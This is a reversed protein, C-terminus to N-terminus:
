NSRKRRGVFGFTILSLLMAFLGALSSTTNNEATEPLEVAGKDSAPTAEDPTVKAPTAPTPQGPTAQGVVPTDPTTPTAPKEPEPTHTKVTNSVLEEGNVILSFTNEVDGPAIRTMQVAAWAGWKTNPDLLKNLEEKQAITFKGNEKDWILNYYKTIDTGLSKISGDDNFVTGKIKTGDKLTTDTSAYVKYQGDFRDHTEDYDDVMAYGYLTNGDKDKADHLGEAPVTVVGSNGTNLGYNFHTGLKIESGDINKSNDMDVFVDKQPDIKPVNNVVTNTQYGNGWDGQFATNTYKTGMAAKTVKGVFTWDLSKGQKIFNNYFTEADKADKNYLIGFAGKPQIGNLKLLDQVVKPADAVSDYQGYTLGEPIQSEGNYLFQDKDPVIAGDPYDDVIVVGKDITNKDLPVGKYQDYDAHVNYHNYSGPLRDQGDINVGDKNKDEKYPNIENPTNPVYPEGPKQPKFPHTNTTVTNSYTVEQKGIYAKFTNTYKGGDNQPAYVIKPASVHFAKSTDATQRAIYDDTAQFSVTNTKADYSMTWDKDLGAAKMADRTGQEDFKLGADLPDKISAVYQDKDRGAALDSTQLDSVLPQGKAVTVGNVSVGDANNLDKSATNQTSVTNLHYHVAPVKPAPQNVYNHYNVVVKDPKPADAKKPTPKPFVIGMTGPKTYANGFYTTNTYIGNKNQNVYAHYTMKNGWGYYNVVNNKSGTNNGTADKNSSFTKHSGDGLTIEVNQPVDNSITDIDGVSASFLYNETGDGIVFTDTTDTRGGAFDRDVAVYVSDDHNGAPVGNMGDLSGGQSANGSTHRIPIWKGSMIQAGKHADMAVIVHDKIWDVDEQSEIGSFYNEGTNQNLILKIGNHGTDYVKAGEAVMKDIASQDVKQTDKNDNILKNLKDIEAKYKADNAANTKDIEAQEKDHKAKNAEAKAKADALNKAQDKAAQTPNQGDKITEDKDKNVTLYDKDTKNADSAADNVDKNAQNTQDVTDKHQQKAHNYDQTVKNIDAAQQNEDNQAKNTEKQADEANTTDVHHTSDQNVTVGSNQANEVADNLGDHNVVQDTHGTTTNANDQVEQHDDTAPAQSDPLTTAHATDPVEVAQQKGSQNDEATQGADSTASASTNADSTAASANGGDSAPTGEAVDASASGTGIVMAVGVAAITSSAAVWKKGDKYMKTRVAGDNSQGM